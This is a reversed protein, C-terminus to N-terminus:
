STYQPTTADIVRRVAQYLEMLSGANSLRRDFYAYGDLSGESAHNGRRRVGPRTVMWLEGGLKRILEAENPFRVDDCVVPLDNDLYYKVNRQWCKLWVDPSICERGWETGLTCLLHRPSVGLEPLIQEKKAPGFLDDMQDHTYGAHALFSRVMAKLPSAFSVTRYGYSTLYAAVSSKGSQPAPSYLGILRPM